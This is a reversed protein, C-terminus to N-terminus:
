RGKWKLRESQDCCEKSSLTVRKRCCVAVVPVGCFHDVHRFDLLEDRVLREHPDRHALRAVVTLLLVWRLGAPWALGCTSGAGGMIALPM